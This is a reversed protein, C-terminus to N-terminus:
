LRRLGELLLGVQILVLIGLFLFSSTGGLFQRALLTTFLFITSFGVGALVGRLRRPIAFALACSVVLLWSVIGYLSDDDVLDTWAAITVGLLAGWAPVIPWGLNPQFRQSLAWCLGNVGGLVALGERQDDLHALTALNVVVLWLVWQPNFRASRALPTLLLAWLTMVWAEEGQMQAAQWGLALTAGLCGSALVLSWGGVQTNWGKRRSFVGSALGLLAVLMMQGWRDWQHWHAAALFFVGSLLALVGLVLLTKELFEGWEAADPPQLACELAYDRAAESWGEQGAVQWVEAATTAREVGQTESIKSM